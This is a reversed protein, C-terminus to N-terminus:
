YLCLHIREGGEEEEGFGLLSDNLGGDILLNASTAAVPIANNAPFNNLDRDVLLGTSTAAVSVADDSSIIASARNCVSTKIDASNERYISDEIIRLGSDQTSVGFM